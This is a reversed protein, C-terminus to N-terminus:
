RAHRAHRLHPSASRAWPRRFTGGPPAAASGGLFDLSEGVTLDDKLADAHAIYM